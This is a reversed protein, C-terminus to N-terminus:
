EIIVLWVISAFIGRSCVLTCPISTLFWLQPLLQLFSTCVEEALHCCITVVVKHLWEAISLLVIAISVATSVNELATRLYQVTDASTFSGMAIVIAPVVESPTALGVATAAVIAEGITRGLFIYLHEWPCVTCRKVPVLCFLFSFKVIHEYLSVGYWSLLQQLVQM